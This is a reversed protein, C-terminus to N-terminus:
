LPADSVMTAFFYVSAMLPLIFLDLKWLVRRAFKPDVDEAENADTKGLDEQSGPTPTQELLITPDRYEDPEVVAHYSTRSTAM